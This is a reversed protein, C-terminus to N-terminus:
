IDEEFCIKNLASIFANISAGIIDRSVGKGSYLKGNSRLKVIASGMAESSETVAQIQFDDLEFHRGAIQEIASFAADIPGDGICFGQLIVGNKELEIHATPTIINGNNIVYSKLKYTASVQLAVSAIIADLEKSNITKKASVNKFEEFVNKLDEDSLDYGLAIVAKSLTKIDDDANLIVDSTNQAQTVIMKDPSKHCISSIYATTNDIVTMNLNTETDLEAGKRSILKAIYSLSPALSSNTATKIQSVGSNICSVACSVAMSLQNSCEVSLTIDTAKEVNKYFDNIFDEFEYPLMEGANDCLTITGAGNEIAVSAANYLFNKEARTADLLSVEIDDCLEKAKKTLDKITELIMKPKKHSIYEMQVTSVPVMLNLRPKKASKIAEYSINISEETIDAPCSIISQNILPCVTHLFLIDTKGNTIPATEIVDVCLKDLKKAIEIKEKFNLSHHEGLRLSADAIIIKRM